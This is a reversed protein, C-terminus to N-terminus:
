DTRRVRPLIVVQGVPTPVNFTGILPHVIRIDWDYLDDMGDILDTPNITIAIRGHLLDHNPDGLLSKEFIELPDGDVADTSEKFSLHLVTAGNLNYPTVGDEKLVDLFYLATNGVTLVLSYADNTDLENQITM